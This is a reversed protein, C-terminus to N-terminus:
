KLTEKIEEIFQKYNIDSNKKRLSEWFLEWWLKEFEIIEIILDIHNEDLEKINDKIYVLYDNIKFFNHKQELFPSFIIVLKKYEKELNKLFSHMIKIIIWNNYYRWIVKALFLAIENWKMQSDKIKKRVQKAKKSDEAVKKSEKESVEKWSNGKEDLTWLNLEEAWM